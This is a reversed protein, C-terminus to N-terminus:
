YWYLNVLDSFQWIPTNFKHSIQIIQIWFPILIKCADLYSNLCFRHHSFTKWFCVFRCLVNHSVGIFLHWFQRRRMIIKHEGMWHKDIDRRLPVADELFHRSHGFSIDERHFALARVRRIRPIKLFHKSLCATLLYQILEIVKWPFLSNESRNINWITHESVICFGCFHDFCSHLDVFFHQEFVVFSCFLVKCDVFLTIYKVRFRKWFEFM